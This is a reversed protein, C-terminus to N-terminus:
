GARTCAAMSADINNGDLALLFAGYYGAHYRRQRAATTASARPSRSGTSSASRAKVSIASGTSPQRM